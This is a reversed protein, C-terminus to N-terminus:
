GVFTDRSSAAFDRSRQMAPPIGTDVGVFDTVTLLNKKVEPTGLQKLHAITLDPM